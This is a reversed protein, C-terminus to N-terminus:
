LDTQNTVSDSEPEGEHLVAVWVVVRQYGSGQMDNTGDWIPPYIVLGSILSQLKEFIAQNGKDKLHSADNQFLHSEERGIVSGM